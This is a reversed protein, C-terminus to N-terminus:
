KDENSVKIKSYKGFTKLFKLKLNDKEAAPLHITYPLIERFFREFEVQTRKGYDVGPVYHDLSYSM